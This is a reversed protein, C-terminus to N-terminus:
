EHKIKGLTSSLVRRAFSCQEAPHFNKQASLRAPLRTTGSFGNTFQFHPRRAQTIGLAADEL